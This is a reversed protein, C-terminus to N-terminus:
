IPLNMSIFMPKMFGLEMKNDTTLKVRFQAPLSEYLDRAYIIKERADDLNMSVFVSLNKDILMSKAVAKAGCNCFSFGVQRSKSYIQSNTKDLLGDRQWDDLILPKDQVSM